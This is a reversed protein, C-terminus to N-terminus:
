DIKDVVKQLKKEYLLKHAKKKKQISINIKFNILECM